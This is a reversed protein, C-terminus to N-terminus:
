IQRWGPPCRPNLGSVHRIAGHRVCTLTVRPAPAFGISPPSSTAGYLAVVSVGYSRGLDLNFFTCSRAGTRQTFNSPANYGYMLTCRFAAGTGTWTATVSQFYHAGARTPTSTVSTILPRSSGTTAWTYLDGVTTNDWMFVSSGGFALLLPQSVSAGAPAFPLNELPGGATMEVVVHVSPEAVFVNGFGDVVVNTADGSLSPLPNVAGGPSISYVAGGAPAVAYIAGDSSVALSELDGAIGSAVLSASGGGAPIEYISSTGGYSSVYVNGAADTTIATPNAISSNLTTQVGGASLRVILRQLSSDFAMIDVNGAPDVALGTIGSMGTLSLTTTTGTAPTFRKIPIASMVSGHAQRSNSTRAAYMRLAPSYYVNGTEDVGYYNYSEPTFDGPMAVTGWAGPATPLSTASAVTSGLPALGMSAAGLAVLLQRIMRTRRTVNMERRRGGECLM